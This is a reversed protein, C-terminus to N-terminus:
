AGNRRVLLLTQDDLQRGYRRVTELITAAIEPLPKDAHEAILVELAKAGYEAHNESKIQSTVELIGDTAIVVIDGAAMVLRSSPFHPVPLLGLPFQEEEVRRMSKTAASWHLLPPGAAMGYFAQGDANLRLATFTAYMHAEKVQPLVLNLRQMLM